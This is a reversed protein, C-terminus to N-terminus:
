GAIVDSCAQWVSISKKGGWVIFACLAFCDFCETHKSLTHSAQQPAAREPNSPLGGSCSFAQVGTRQKTLLAITTRDRLIISDRGIQLAIWHKDRIPESQLWEPWNLAGARWCRPGTARSSCNRSLTSGSPARLSNVILCVHHSTLEWINCQCYMTQLFSCSPPAPATAVTCFKDCCNLAVTKVSIFNRSLPKNKKMSPQNWNVTQNIPYPLTPPHPHNQSKNPTFKCSKLWLVPWATKVVNYKWHM